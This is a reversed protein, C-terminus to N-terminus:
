TTDGPQGNARVASVLALTVVLTAILPVSRM